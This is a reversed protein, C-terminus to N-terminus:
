CYLKCKESAHTQCHVIIKRYRFLVLKHAKSEDSVHIGECDKCLHMKCVDCHLLPDPIECLNCRAVDQFNEM